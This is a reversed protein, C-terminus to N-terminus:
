RAAALLSDFMSDITAILKSSAQYSRELELMVLYEEQVNIGTVKSLSDAAREYVVSTYEFDSYAAQREASLWGDSSAALSAVSTSTSLGAAASFTRNTGIAEVQGLIRENFGAAAPPGNYVYNAGNIGGDRIFNVNSVVAPNISITAAIGVARVGTPPIAPPATAGPGYTFLGTRDPGAGVQDSEAFAEVLGRAVEDLQAQFKPATVDRVQLLGAIRGTTVPMISSPGSIPVGDAFVANGTISADLSSTPVFSIKRASRDFLTVGGDTRIAMDNNERLETRIGFEESLAAVLQDRTDMQDTVDRGAMTGRVIDQNIKEFDALIGNVKIVSANIDGDADQRAKQTEATATRLGSAVDQAARLADGARAIDQPGESYFQLARELKAILAAPSVGLDPDLVSSNLSELGDVLAKDRAAASTSTLAKSLLLENESRVPVSLRVGGSAMTVYQAIKRTASPDGARAVNRSVTQMYEATSSLHSRAVDLSRTLSM